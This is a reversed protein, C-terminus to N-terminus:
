PLSRFVLLGDNHHYEDTDDYAAEILRLDPYRDLFLRVTGHFGDAIETGYRQRGRLFAQAVILVGGPKLIRRCNVVTRDMRELIYWLVQNLVVAEYRAVGVRVPLDGAVDGILFRHEPHLWRARSIAENSIDLGLWAGNPDAESLLPLVHGLGCGVELREGHGYVHRQVARCLRQRSFRYYAAMDGDAGSQGWPDLERAYLGDFDGVFELRGEPGERFVLGDSM